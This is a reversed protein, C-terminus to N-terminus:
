ATGGKVEKTVLDTVVDRITRERAAAHIKLATLTEKSLDVTLRSVHSRRERLRPDNKTNM